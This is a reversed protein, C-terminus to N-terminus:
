FFQKRFSISVTRGLPDLYGPQYRLPTVGTADTVDRRSDFLNEISFTLRTGRLFPHAIVLKPMQGLNAFLRLDATALSSFRLSGTPSGLAGNVRTASQWNASLRAGL